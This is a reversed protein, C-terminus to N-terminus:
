ERDFEFSPRNILGPRQGAFNVALGILAYSAALSSGGYSVLPLTIGIIPLLGMTMAMNITAQMLILSAFGVLVLRGFPDKSVSARALLTGVLLGYLGIVLAGGIMGWRNVIVAFIMDNHQEPLRNFRLVTAGRQAGYGRLGGAGILTMAKDQQYGVGEVFRTGGRTQEVFARVRARQHPELAQMSEPLVYVAAVALAVALVGLGALTALHRLRAGAALLMVFLVPVFVLATGMDPQRLILLVPVFMLAFPVLLGRLTRYNSRHRLYWALALVAVIKAPEAPQLRLLRLDIWARTGNIVPVLSTPVGPTVTVLLLLLAALFLAFSWLGVVRPRPLACLAALGLGIFLWRLQTAAYGPEVTSMAAVGVATLGAAALVLYWGGHPRILERWRVGAARETSPRSPAVTARPAGLSTM